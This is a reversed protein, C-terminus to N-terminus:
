QLIFINNGSGLTLKTGVPCRTVVNTALKQSGNMVTGISSYDTVYYYGDSAQYKISCHRRSIDGDGIVLQAMSSNRGIVIEEGDKLVMEAGSYVGKICKLVGVSSAPMTRPDNRNPDVYKEIDDGANSNRKSNWGSNDGNRYDESSREDERERAENYEHCLKNVNHIFLYFSVLPGCGVLLGGLTNWLVYTSGKETIELGYAHGATRVRNGQKYFWVHLYIGLTVVILLLLILYNPSKDDDTKETYGCATNLDQIMYWWFIVQYIGLTLIGFVIVKWLKREENLREHM